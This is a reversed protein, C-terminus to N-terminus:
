ACISSGWGAGVGGLSLTTKKGLVTLNIGKFSKYNGRVFQSAGGTGGGGRWGRERKILVPGGCGEFSRGGRM